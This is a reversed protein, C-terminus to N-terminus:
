PTDGKRKRPVLEPEAVIEALRIRIPGRATSPEVVVGRQTIEIVGTAVLRRAACRTPEMLDEWDNPSVSRAVESPCISAGRKRSNLLSM